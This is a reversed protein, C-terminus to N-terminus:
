KGLHITKMMKYNYHGRYKKDAHSSPFFKWSKSISNCLCHNSSGIVKLIDMIDDGPLYHHKNHYLPNETHEFILCIYM